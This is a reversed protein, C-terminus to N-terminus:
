SYVPLYAASTKKSLTASQNPPAVELHDIRKIIEKFDPREDPKFKWCSSMIKYRFYLAYFLDNVNHSCTVFYSSYDYLSLFYSGTKVSHACSRVKCQITGVCVHYCHVYSTIRRDKLLCM